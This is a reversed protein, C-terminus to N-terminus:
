FGAADDASRVAFVMDNKTMENLKTSTYYAADIAALRTRLDNVSMYRADTTLNGPLDTQAQTRRRDTVGLINEQETDAM